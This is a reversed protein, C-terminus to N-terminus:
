KSGPGRNCSSHLRGWDPTPRGSCSRVLRFSFSGCKLCQYTYLDGCFVAETWDRGPAESSGIMGLCAQTRYKSTAVAGILMWFLGMAACVEDRMCPKENQHRAGRQGREMAWSPLENTQEGSPGVLRRVLGTQRQVIIRSGRRSSQGSPTSQWFYRKQRTAGRLHPCTYRWLRSLLLLTVLLTGSPPFHGRLAGLAAWPPNPNETLLVFSGAISRLQVDM